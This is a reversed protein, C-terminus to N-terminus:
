GETYYRSSLANIGQAVERNKKERFLRLDINCPVVSIHVWERYSVNEVDLFGSHICCVCTENKEFFFFLVWPLFFLFLM